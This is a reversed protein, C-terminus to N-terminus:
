WQAVSTHWTDDPLDILTAGYRALSARIHEAKEASVPDVGTVGKALRYDGKSFSRVVERLM